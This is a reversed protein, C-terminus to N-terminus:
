ASAMVGEVFESEVAGDKSEADRIIDLDIDPLFAQNFNVPQHRTTGISRTGPIPISLFIAAAARQPRNPRM